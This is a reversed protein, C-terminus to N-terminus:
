GFHRYLLEGTVRCVWAPSHRIDVRSITMLNNASRNPASPIFSYLLPVEQAGWLSKFRRLGDNEFDTRGFDLVKYGNECGWRIAEWFILDNPRLSLDTLSSAGYKYTLTDGWCLFVAAALCTQEHYALLIFGLGKELLLKRMNEFFSWPQVPMGQRRRTAIHLQYYDDLEKRGSGMRLQVGRKQATQANRRHMPHIQKAVAGFDQALSLKHLVFMDKSCVKPQAPYSWRLELSASGHNEFSSLIFDNLPCLVSEDVALPACHDTFPLSIWRCSSFSKIEMVPLGGRIAGMSDMIALVFPRYGYTQALLDSWAPHHFICSHPATNTFRLWRGNSIALIQGTLGPTNV